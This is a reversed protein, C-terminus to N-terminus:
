ELYRSDINHDDLILTQTLSQTCFHSKGRVPCAIMRPCGASAVLLLVGCMYQLGCDAMAGM